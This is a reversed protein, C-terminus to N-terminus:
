PAFSSASESQRHIRPPSTRSLLRRPRPAMGNQLARQACAVSVSVAERFYAPSQPLHLHSNMAKKHHNADRNLIASGGDFRPLRRGRRADTRVRRSLDACSISNGARRAPPRSRPASATSSADIAVSPRRSRDEDVFERPPFPPALQKWTCRRSCANRQLPTNARPRKPMVRLAM